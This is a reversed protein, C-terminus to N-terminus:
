CTRTGGLSVRAIVCSSGADRWLKQKRRAGSCGVRWWLGRWLGCIPGEQHSCSPLPAPMRRYLAPRGLASFFFFTLLVAGGRKDAM